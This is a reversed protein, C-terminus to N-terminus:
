GTDARIWSLGSQLCALSLASTLALSTPSSVMEDFSPLTGPWSGSASYQLDCAIIEAAVARREEREWDNKPPPLMGVGSVTEGGQEPEDLLGLAIATRTMVGVIIWGDLWRVHALTTKIVRLYIDSISCESQRRVSM